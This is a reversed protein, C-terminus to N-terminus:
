RHHNASSPRSGSLKQIFIVADVNRKSTPTLSGDFVLTQSSTTDFYFQTTTATTLRVLQVTPSSSTTNQYITFTDMQGAHFLKFTAIVPNRVNATIQLYSVYVEYWGANTITPIFEM